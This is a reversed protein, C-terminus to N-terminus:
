ASGGGARWRGRAWKRPVGDRLQEGLTIMRVDVGSADLCLHCHTAWVRRGRRALVKIYENDAAADSAYGNRALTGQTSLVCQDNILAIKGRASGAPRRANNM